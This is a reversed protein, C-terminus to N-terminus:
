GAVQLPNVDDKVLHFCEYLTKQKHPLRLSQANAKFIVTIKLWAEALPSDFLKHYWGAM